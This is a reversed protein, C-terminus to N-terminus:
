HETQRPIATIHGTEELMAAKIGDPSRFGLKRLGAALEEYSLGERHLNEELVRGDVVLPRPKGRVLHRFARNRACLMALGKHALFVTVVFIVANLAGKELTAQQIVVALSILVLLDFTTTQGALRKGALRMLVVLGIYYVVARLAQAAYEM